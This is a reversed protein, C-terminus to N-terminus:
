GALLVSSALEAAQHEMDMAAGRLTEWSIVSSGGSDGDPAVGNPELQRPKKRSLM